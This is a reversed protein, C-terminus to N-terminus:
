AHVLIKVVTQNYRGRHARRRRQTPGSTDYVNQSTALSSCCFIPCICERFPAFKVNQACFRFSLTPFRFCLTCFRFDAASYVQAWAYFIPGGACFYNFLRRIFIVEQAFLFFQRWRSLRMKKTIWQVKECKKPKTGFRRDCFIFNLVYITFVFYKM